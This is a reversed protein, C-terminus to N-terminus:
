ANRFTNQISKSDSTVRPDLLFYKLDVVVILRSMSSFFM